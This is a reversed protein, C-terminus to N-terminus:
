KLITLDPNEDTLFGVLIGGRFCDAIPVGNFLIRDAPVGDAMVVVMENDNDDVCHFEYPGEQNGALAIAGDLDPATLVVMGVAEADPKANNIFEEDGFLVITRGEMYQRLIAEETAPPLEPATARVTIGCALTAFGLIIVIVLLRKM